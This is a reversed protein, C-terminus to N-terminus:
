DKDDERVLGLIKICKKLSGDVSHDMSEYIKSLDMLLKPDFKQDKNNHKFMERFTQDSMLTKDSNLNLITLL